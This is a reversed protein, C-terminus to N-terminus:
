SVKALAWGNGPFGRDVAPIKVLLMMVQFYNKDVTHTGVLLIM